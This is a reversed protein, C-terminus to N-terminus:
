YRQQQRQQQLFGLAQLSRPDNGGFGLNPSPSAGGLASLQSLNLNGGGITGGQGGIGGLGASSAAEAPAGGSYVNKAVKALSGAGADGGGGGLANLGGGAIAGGLGGGAINLLAGLPGSAEEEPRYQRERQFAALAGAAGLILPLFAVM